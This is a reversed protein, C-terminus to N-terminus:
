QNSGHHEHWWRVLPCIKCDWDNDHCAPNVPLILLEKVTVEMVAIALWYPYFKWTLILKIYGHGM